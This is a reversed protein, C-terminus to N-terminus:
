EEREPMETLNPIELDNIFSEFNLKMEKHMKISVNDDFFMKNYQWISNMTNQDVGKGRAIHFIPFSWLCAHSPAKELCCYIPLAFTGHPVFVHVQLMYM